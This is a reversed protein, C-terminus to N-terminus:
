RAAKTAPKKLVPKKVKSNRKKHRKKINQQQQQQEAQEAQENSPPQKPVILDYESSKVNSVQRPGVWEYEDDATGNYHEATLLDPGRTFSIGALLCGMYNGIAGVSITNGAAKGL